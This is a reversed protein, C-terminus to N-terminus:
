ISNYFVPLRLLLTLILVAHTDTSGTLRCECGRRADRYRMVSYVEKTNVTWGYQVACSTETVILATLVSLCDNWRIWAM